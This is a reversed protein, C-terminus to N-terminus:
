ADAAPAGEAQAKLDRAREFAVKSSAYPEQLDVSWYRLESLPIRRGTVACAIFDGPVLVQFEGHLYKLKAEGRLGLGKEFRNMMGGRNAGDWRYSLSECRM